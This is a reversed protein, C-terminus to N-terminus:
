GCRASRRRTSARCGRRPIPRPRSGARRRPRARASRATPRPRPRISLAARSEPRRRGPTPSQQQPRVVRLRQVDERMARADAHVMRAHRRIRMAERLAPDRRQAELKRVHLLAASPGVRRCNGMGRHPGRDGLRRSSAGSRGSNAPPRDYPPRIVECACAIAGSGPTRPSTNRPKGSCGAPLGPM